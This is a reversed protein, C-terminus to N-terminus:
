ARTFACWKYGGVVALLSAERARVTKRARTTEAGVAEVNPAASGSTRRQQRRAPEAGIRVVVAAGVVIRRVIGLL